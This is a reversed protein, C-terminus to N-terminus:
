EAQGIRATLVDDAIERVAEPLEDLVSAYFGHVYMRVAEDPALGRSTMYFQMEPDISGMTVGHSCSVDNNKIELEPISEAKATKSLILNRNAQYAECNKAQEEIEIMGTSASNARDRVAVKMDLQSYTNGAIHRHRTHHDFQQADRGFLLGRLRSDAGEGALTVGLNAKGRGSGLSLFSSRMRGDREVKGRHTFYLTQQPQLRQLHVFDVAANDGAFVENVSYIRGESADTEGALEDVVTVRSNAGAIVLLRSASLADGFSRRIHIPEGIVVNDPVYLLFGTNWLALNLSELKGFDAGVLTGLHNSLLYPHKRLAHTLGTFIVGADLYRQELHTVSHHQDLTAGLGSAWASVDAEDLKHGNPATLPLGAFLNEGERPLYHQPDSYRWLHNVRSPEPLTFYHDWATKRLQYSWDPEEALANRFRITKETHDQM